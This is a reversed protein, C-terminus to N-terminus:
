HDDVDSTVSLKRLHHERLAHDFLYPDRKQLSQVIDRHRDLIEKAVPYKGPAYARFFPDLLQHFWIALQNRSIGVLKLHFERDLRPWVESNDAESVMQDYIDRLEQVDL